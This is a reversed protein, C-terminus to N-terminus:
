NIIKLVFHWPLLLWALPSRLFYFSPLQQPQNVGAREQSTLMNATLKGAVSTWWCDMHTTVLKCVFSRFGLNKYIDTYSNRQAVDQHSWAKLIKSWVTFKALVYSKYVCKQFQTTFQGKREGIVM